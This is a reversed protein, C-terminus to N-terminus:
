PMACDTLANAVFKCLLEDKDAVAIMAQWYTLVYLTPDCTSSFTNFKTIKFGRPVPEEMEWNKFPLASARKIAKQIIEKDM